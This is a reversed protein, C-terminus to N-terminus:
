HGYRTEGTALANGIKEHTLPDDDALMLTIRKRSGDPLLYSVHRSFEGDSTIATIIYPVGNTYSANNPSTM